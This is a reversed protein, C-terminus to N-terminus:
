ISPHNQMLLPQMTVRNKQVDDNDGIKVFVLEAMATVLTREITM